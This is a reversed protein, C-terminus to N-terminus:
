IKLRKYFIYVTGKRFTKVRGGICEQAELLIFDVNEQALKSAAGIGAM